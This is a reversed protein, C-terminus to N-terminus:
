SQSFRAYIQNVSMNQLSASPLTLAFGRAVLPMSLAAWLSMPM